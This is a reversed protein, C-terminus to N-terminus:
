LSLTNRLTKVLDGFEFPKRIFGCIQAASMAGAIMEQSYASTLIVRIDPRTKAAEAVIEYSSAGPLTMDLLMADVRCGNARLLEIASSGDAAEFVEFGAKRLMKAVSQRLAGEDEVVLLTADQSPRALEEVGSTPASSAGAMTEAPPILVYFSAGEGPESAVSIEGRLGRVIGQVVALGLGHGASKTTFFPDFVRAQTERSMGGGTDSVELQVYDGENLCDSIAGSSNRGAKVCRTTVRIVGDRDGIAESANTVLNMVVQRLQAASGLVAPLNQGLDTELTARKSVSVKLLELMEKVIRSIDVL